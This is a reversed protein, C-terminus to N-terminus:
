DNKSEREFSHLPKAADKIKLKASVSFKKFNRWDNNSQKDVFEYNKKILCEKQRTDSRSTVIGLESGVTVNEKLRSIHHVICNTM